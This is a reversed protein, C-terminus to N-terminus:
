PMIATPVPERAPRSVPIAGPTEGKKVSAVPNEQPEVSEHVPANKGPVVLGAAVVLALGVVLGTRGQWKM